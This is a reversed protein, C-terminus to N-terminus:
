YYNLLAIFCLTKMAKKISFLFLHVDLVIIVFTQM